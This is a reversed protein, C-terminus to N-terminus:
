SRVRRKASPKNKTRAVARIHRVAYQCITANKEKVGMKRLWSAAPVFSGVFKDQVADFRCTIMARERKLIDIVSCVLDRSGGDPRGGKGPGIRNAAVECALALHALQQAVPLPEIRRLEPDVRFDSRIAADRSQLALHIAHRAESALADRPLIGRAPEVADWDSFISETGALLTATRRCSVALLRLHTRMARPPVGEALRARDLSYQRFAERVQQKAVSGLNIGFLVGLDSLQDDDPAHVWFARSFIPKAM